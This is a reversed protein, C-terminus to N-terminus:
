RSINCRRRRLLPPEQGHRRRLCRKDMAAAGALLGEIDIGLVAAPLLGVPCLESFRGGVGDPIFFTKFGEKKALKILNGKKASTTAIIHKQWGEGIERKLIDAIILYQSMTESTAGSKTIVNFVTRRVDIVDLLALMREPDVNDEVFFKM